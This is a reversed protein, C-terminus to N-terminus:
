CVCSAERSARTQWSWYRNLLFNFTQSSMHLCPPSYDTYPLLTEWYGPSHLRSASDAAENFIGPIFKATLHFNFRASLWFLSRLCKMVIANRCSCRNLASVTVTNDSYIVVKKNKWLPSWRYAALTVAVIEKENIHFESAEPWDIAWNFYFWDGQFYGGGGDNSADTFVCELPLSDLLASKGNFVHVCQFWWNIDQRVETSLQTRHSGHRLMSIKNFIRRLFVRGGRVVSAAWSLRGALSQLQRKSARNRNLFSKLEQRLLDLKDQPLRLTMEISDLEIGLFTIRQTPDIVKGWHIAFGLKRLLQILVSLAQACAEKSRSIILFDDLYVIMLDFGKRSMIRKVAQTLRHFIGPSLSAGFPLRTDKLFVEGRGEFEWRLGTVTQSHKSLKVSRYANKLDVKAFFCGQTMLNAADDLRAFKQQWDASNHDNVSLGPPRSCDHILRVGGDPKPIAAMPSVITPPHDCIVYNGCQIENLVQKTAKEYLESQPKASPHNPLIVPSLVAENDIIDFGHKIGHLLFERDVDNGLEEEWATLNLGPLPQVEFELKKRFAYNGPTESYLRSTYM